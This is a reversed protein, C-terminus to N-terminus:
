PKCLSPPLDTNKILQGAVLLAQSFSQSSSFTQEGPTQFGLIVRTELQWHRPNLLQWISQTYSSPGLHVPIFLFVIYYCKCIDNHLGNEEKKPNEHTTHTHAHMHTPHIHQRTQKHFSSTSMLQSPISGLSGM